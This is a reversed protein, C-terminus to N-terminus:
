TKGKHVCHQHIKLSQENRFTKGCKECKLELQEEHQWLNHSNLGSKTKYSKPCKDCQYPRENEHTTKVHLEMDCKNEFGKGCYSCKLNPKNFHASLIHYKVQERRFRQCSNCYLCITKGDSSIECHKKVMHAALVRFSPCIEKCIECTAKLDSYNIIRWLFLEIITLFCLETLVLVKFLM